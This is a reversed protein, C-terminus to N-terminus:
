TTGLSLAHLIVKLNFVDIKKTAAEWGAKAWLLLSPPTKLWLSKDLSKWGASTWLNDLATWIPAPLPCQPMRKGSPNLSLSGLAPGLLQLGM